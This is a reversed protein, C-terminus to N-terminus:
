EWGGDASTSKRQRNSWWRKTSVAELSGPAKLLGSGATGYLVDM